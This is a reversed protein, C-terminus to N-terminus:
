KLAEQVTKQYLANAEPTDVIGDKNTDAETYLEDFEKYHSHMTPAKGSLYRGSYTTHDEAVTIEGLTIALVTELVERSEDSLQYHHFKGTRLDLSEYKVLSDKSNSCGGLLSLSLLGIVIKDMLAM